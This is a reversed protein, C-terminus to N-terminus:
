LFAVNCMFQIRAIYIAEDFGSNTFACPKTM